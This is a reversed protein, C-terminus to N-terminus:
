SQPTLLFYGFAGTRSDSGAVLIQGSNNIRFAFSLTVYPKNPDNNRIFDNLNYPIADQWLVAYGNSAAGVLQDSDNIGFPTAQQSDSPVQLVTV